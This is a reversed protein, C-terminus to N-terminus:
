VWDERQLTHWVRTGVGFDGDAEIRQYDQHRGTEMRSGSMIHDSVYVQRACCRARCSCREGACVRRRGVAERVRKLGDERGASLACSEINQYMKGDVVMMSFCWGDGIFGEVAKESYGEGILYEAFDEMTAFVPSVPSGESVTEWLQWGEGEPPPTEEWNEADEKASSPVWVNGEGDCVECYGWVGLRKCRTKVCIWQNVTDHGFMGAQAAWTNVDAADPCRLVPLRKGVRIPVWRPVWKPAYGRGSWDVRFRHTVSLIRWAKVLTKVEDQTIDYCWKVGLGEFDYWAKEIRASEPNFGTGDCAECRESFEYWPNLFGWWTKKLPWDFDLPVRRIERGM